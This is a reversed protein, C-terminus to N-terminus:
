RQVATDFLIATALVNVELVPAIAAIAADLKAVKTGEKRNTLDFSPSNSSTTGHVQRNLRPLATL